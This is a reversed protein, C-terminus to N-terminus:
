FTIGLKPIVSCFVQGTTELRSLLNTICILNESLSKMMKMIDNIWVNVELCAIVFFFTILWWYDLSM